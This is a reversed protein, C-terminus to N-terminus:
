TSPGRGPSAEEQTRQPENITVRIARGAPDTLITLNDGIAQKATVISMDASGVIATVDDPVKIGARRLLAAVVM